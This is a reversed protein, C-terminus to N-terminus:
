FRVVFDQKPSEKRFFIIGMRYLDISVTVEPRAIIEKWAKCMGESWYIDDFIFISQDTSKGLLMEFYKLTPEYRHNGDIFAFDITEINPLVKPLQKDFEGVTLLTNPFVIM